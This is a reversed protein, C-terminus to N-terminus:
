VADKLSLPVRWVAVLDGLLGVHHHQEIKEGRLFESLQKAAEALRELVFRDRAIDLVVRLPGRM